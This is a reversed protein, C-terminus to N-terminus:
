HTIDGNEFILRVKGPGAPSNASVEVTSADIERWSLKPNHPMVHPARVLEALYRMLEGKSAQPGAVPALRLSGSFAHKSSVQAMQILTLSARRRLHAERM